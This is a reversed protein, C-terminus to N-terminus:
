GPEREWPAPVPFYAALFSALVEDVGRRDLAPDHSEGLCFGEHTRRALTRLRGRLAPDALDVYTMDSPALHATGTILGHHQALSSLLSVDTPSRFPARATAAVEDPFRDVVAAVVSRRHPYPAHALTHVTTVGFARQLLERNRAAAWAWPLEQQGPLGVLVGSAAVATSGSSDFFREPWAPSGLLMDDNFYLFHEALGTIRHLATEIAHSNFTPLAEAPLLDRHDVMNIKPHDVDLWAPTQGATVVHIRRVWPAFLHLGRMSYRLEDRDTYRAPGSVTTHAAAPGGAALRDRRAAEWAPDSGDVWTYVVDIDFTVDTPTPGLMTPFTPVERGLVEATTPVDERRVLTTWAARGPTHLHGDPGEEWFEVVVECGRGLVSDADPWPEIVLRGTRGRLLGPALEAPTGRREPWGRREPDVVSSWGPLGGEALAELFGRRHDMAMCVVPPDSARPPVVWWRGHPGAARAAATAVVAFADQRARVPTLGVTRRSGAQEPTPGTVATGDPHQLLIATARGHRSGARSAVAEEFIGIWRATIDASDWTAAKAHAAAGLRLREDRDLALRLLGAALGPRSGQDVLLGDVGDDIQDRPGSPMDYAVVPVGAAMAEQIVLPFAEGPQSTLASISARPWESALDSTPGPLEVRDWLGLRRVTRRVDYRGPGDGFIRLRWDPIRDAVLAFAGVLHTWQKERALRGAALVVPETLRSRPRYGPPVANPVVVVRPATPGAGLQERLWRGMPETLSAVVDARRASDLLLGRGIPRQSSSRHEQHVVAVGAPVLRVAYGLLAPTVTVLVDTELTPLAAELGMDALADFNPDLGPEILLPAAGRLRLGVEPALDPVGAVRVTADRLDVLDRVEVRPDLPFHHTDDHRYVSLVTVDLGAAVLANAQTVVAGATGGLDHVTTIVFHVRM